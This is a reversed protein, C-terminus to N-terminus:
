KAIVSLRGGCAAAVCAECRARLWLQECVSRHYLEFDDAFLCRVHEWLPRNTAQMQEYTGPAPACIQKNDRAEARARRPVPLGGPHGCLASAFVDAHAGGQTQREGAVTQRARAAAAALAGPDSRWHSSHLGVALAGLGLRASRFEADAAALGHPLLDIPVLKFPPQRDHRGRKARQTEGARAFFPELWESYQPLVHGVGWGDKSFGLKGSRGGRQPMRELAQVHQRFTYNGARVKRVDGVVRILESWRDCMKSAATHFFSSLARDLPNRVLVLCLWGPAACQEAAHAHAPMKHDPDSNFVQRAYSLIRTSMGTAKGNDALWREAARTSNTHALMLAVSTTKGAKPASCLM